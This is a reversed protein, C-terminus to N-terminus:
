WIQQSARGIKWRLTFYEGQGQGGYLPGHWIHSFRLIRRNTFSKPRFNTFGCMWPIAVRIVTFLLSGNALPLLAPDMVSWRPWTVQGRWPGLGRLGPAVGTLGTFSLLHFWGASVKLHMFPVQSHTACNYFRIQPTRFRQKMLLTQIAGPM